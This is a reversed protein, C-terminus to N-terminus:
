PFQIGNDNLELRDTYSVGSNSSRSFLLRGDATASIRWRYVGNELIFDSMSVTGVGTVFDVYNKNVVDTALTPSDLVSISPAQLKGGVVRIDDNAELYEGDRFAVSGDLGRGFPIRESAVWTSSIPDFVIAGGSAFSTALAKPIVLNPDYTQYSDYDTKYGFNSEETYDGM